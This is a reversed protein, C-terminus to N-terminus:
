ILGNKELNDKLKLYLAKQNKLSNNSLTMKIVLTDITEQRM